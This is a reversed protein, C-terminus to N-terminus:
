LKPNMGKLKCDFSKRAFKKWKKPYNKQVKRLRRQEMAILRALAILLLAPHKSQRQIENASQRLREAAVVADHHCGLLSQFRAVKRAFKHFKKGYLGAFWGHTYRLRKFAIRLRHLRRWDTHELAKRGRRRVLDLAQQIMVISAKASSLAAMAANPNRSPGTKLFRQFRSILQSYRRSRLAELMEHRAKERAALLDESYFIL